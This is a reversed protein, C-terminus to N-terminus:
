AGERDAARPAEQGDSVVAGPAAANRRRFKEVVQTIYAAHEDV